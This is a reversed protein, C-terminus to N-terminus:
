QPARGSASVPASVCPEEGRRVVHGRHAARGQGPQKTTRVWAYRNGHKVHFM